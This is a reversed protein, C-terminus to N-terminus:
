NALARRKFCTARGGSFRGVCAGTAGDILSGTTATLYASPVSIVEARVLFLNLLISPLILSTMMIQSCLQPGIVGILISLGM